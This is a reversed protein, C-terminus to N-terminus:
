QNSGSFAGFKFKWIWKRPKESCIVLYKEEISNIFLYVKGLKLKTFITHAMGLENSDSPSSNATDYLCELSTISQLCVFSARADEPVTSCWTKVTALSIVFHLFCAGRICANSWVAFQKRYLILCRVFIEVKNRLYPSCGTLIYSITQIKTHANNRIM